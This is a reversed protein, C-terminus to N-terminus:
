QTERFTGATTSTQPAFHNSCFEFCLNEGLYSMTALIFVLSKARLRDSGNGVKLPNGTRQGISRGISSLRTTRANLQVSTLPREWLWIPVIHALDNQVV